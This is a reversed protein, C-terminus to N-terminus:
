SSVCMPSSIWFVYYMDIQLGFARHSQIRPGQGRLGGAGGLDTYHRNPTPLRGIPTVNSKHQQMDKLLTALNAKGSSM